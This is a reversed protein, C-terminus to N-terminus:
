MREYLNPFKSAAATHGFKVFAYKDAISEPRVIRLKLTTTEILFNVHKCSPDHIKQFKGDILFYLQEDIVIIAKIEEFCRNESNFVLSDYTRKSLSNTSTEFYIRGNLFAARYEKILTTENISLEKRIFKLDLISLRSVSKGIVLSDNIKFAIPFSLRNEIKEYYQKALDSKQLHINLNKELQYRLSIQSTVDTTGKVFNTLHGIYDEMPYNSYACLPGNKNVCESLYKLQHVNYVM